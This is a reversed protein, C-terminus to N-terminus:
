VSYLGPPWCAEAGKETWLQSAVVRFMHGEVDLIMARLAAETPSGMIRDVQAVLRQAHAHTAIDEKTCQSEAYQSAAKRDLARAVARVSRAAKADLPAAALETKLKWLINQCHQLFVEFAQETPASNTWSSALLAVSTAM